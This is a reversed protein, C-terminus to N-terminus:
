AILILLSLAWGGPGVGIRDFFKDLLDFGLPFLQVDDLFVKSFALGCVLAADEYHVLVHYLDVLAGCLSQSPSILFGFSCAVRPTSAVFEETEERGLGPIGVGM